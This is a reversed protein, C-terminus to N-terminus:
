LQAMSRDTLCSSSATAILFCISSSRLRSVVIRPPEPRELLEPLEVLEALEAGARLPPFLRLRRPPREAAPRSRIAAAARARQARAFALAPPEPDLVWAELLLFDLPLLFPPM